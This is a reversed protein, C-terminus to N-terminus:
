KRIFIYRVFWALGIIPAAIMVSDVISEMSKKGDGTHLKANVHDLSANLGKLVGLMVYGIAYGFLPIFWIFWPLRIGFVVSAGYVISYLLIFDAVPSKKKQSDQTM